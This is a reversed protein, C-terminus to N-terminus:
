KKSKTDPKNKKGFDLFSDVENEDGEASARYYLVGRSHKACDTAWSRAKSKGLKESYAGMYTGRKDRVIYSGFTESSNNEM